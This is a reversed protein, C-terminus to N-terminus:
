SSEHARPDTLLGRRDYWLELPWTVLPPIAALVALWAYKPAWQLRKAAIIAVVFYALFAIGHLRGFWWVLKESGAPGYKLYMGILLGAWTVAEVLACLKFLGVIGSQTKM